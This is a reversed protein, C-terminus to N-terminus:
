LHMRRRFEERLTKVKLITTLVVIIVGCCTLVVASWSLFLNHFLYYDVILEIGVCLTAIGLFVSICISLFSRKKWRLFLTFLLFISFVLLLIPLALRPYWGSGPHKWAITKLYIALAIGDFIETLYISLKTYIFFPILFIWILGCAGILYLSWPSKQFVLLNLLGCAIATSSLIVTSLIAAVKKNTKAVEGRQNPYPSHECTHTNGPNWVLTHCLPCEKLSTELEM